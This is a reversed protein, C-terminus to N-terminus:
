THTHTHTHTTHTHHTLQPHTHNHTHPTHQTHAAVRQGAHLIPSASNAHHRLASCALENSAGRRARARGPPLRRAPQTPPGNILVHQADAAAQTPANQTHVPWWARWLQTGTCNQTHLHRWCLCACRARRMKDSGPRTRATVARAGTLQTSSPRQQRQRLGAPWRSEQAAKTRRRWRGLTCRKQGRPTPQTRRQDSDQMRARREGGWGVGRDRVQQCCIRHRTHAHTTANQGGPRHCRWARGTHTNYKVVVHANAARCDTGSHKHTTHTTQGCCVWPHEGRPSHTHTHLSYFRCHPPQTPAQQPTWKIGRTRM